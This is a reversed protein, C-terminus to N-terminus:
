LSSKLDLFKIPYLNSKEWSTNYQLHQISGDSSMYSKIQVPNEVNSFLFKLTHCLSVFYLIQRHHWGSVPFSTRNCITLSTTCFSSLQKQVMGCWLYLTSTAKGWPGPNEDWSWWLRCSYQQTFVPLETNQGWKCFLYYLITYFLIIEMRFNFTEQRILFGTTSGQDSCAEHYVLFSPYDSETWNLWETM